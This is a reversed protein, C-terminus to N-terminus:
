LKAKEGTGVVADRLERRLIKGSASKPVSAVFVVGGRLRKYAALNEAVFAQVDAETLRDDTRVVFARPLETEMAASWAGVVAADAIRPHSTLLAELEAPAVQAGKYKILEKKRDLIFVRGARVVGIDGSRYFGDIFGEANARPNNHYDQALIPGGILLEGPEGEPADHDNSDLVRITTNPCPEGVPWDSNDAEWDLAAIVGNTETTGWTQSICAKGRGLKSQVELMTAHGIPASGTVAVQLHDFQDTVLDSKAIRLWIPPVSFQYHPRYRKHHALFSEFDYHEMWYTTGGMYFPNISYLAIGAINAMPLHAITSFVFDPHRTKYQVAPDMTCITSAVAGRHSIRVGKPLGTTGSSYLLCITTASIDTPNTLRQWDLLKGHGLALVDTGHPDRLTWRRPTKWDLTLVRDSPIGCQKAAAVM